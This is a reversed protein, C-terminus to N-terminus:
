KVTVVKNTFSLDEKINVIAVPKTGFVYVAGLTVHAGASLTVSGKGSGRTEGYLYFANISSGNKEMDLYIDNLDWRATNGDTARNSGTLPISITKGIGIGNPFSFSLDIDLTKGSSEKLIPYTLIGVGSKRELRFNLKTIGSMDEKLRGVDGAADKYSYAAGLPVIKIQIPNSGGNGTIYSNNMFYGAYFKSGYKYHINKAYDVSAFPQLINQLEIENKKNKEINYIIEQAHDEGNVFRVNKEVYQIEDTIPDIVEKTITINGNANAIKDYVLNFSLLSNDGLVKSGRLLTISNDDSKKLTYNLEENIIIGNGSNVKITTSNPKEFSFQADTYTSLLGYSDSEFEYVHEFNLENPLESDAKVSNPIALLFLAISLALGSWLYKKM